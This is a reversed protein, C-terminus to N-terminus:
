NNWNSIGANKYSTGVCATHVGMMAWSFSLIVTDVFEAILECFNYGCFKICENWHVMFMKAMFNLVSTTTSRSCEATGLYHKINKIAFHVIYMVLQM